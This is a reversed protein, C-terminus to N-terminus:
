AVEDEPLDKDCGFLTDMGYEENAECAIDGLISDIEELADTDIEDFNRLGCLRDLVYARAEKLREPDIALHYIKFEENM